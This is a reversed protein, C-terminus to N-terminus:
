TNFIWNKFSARASLKSVKFLVSLVTSNVDQHWCRQSFSPTSFHNNKLAAELHIYSAFLIQLSAPFASQLRMQNFLESCAIIHRQHFLMYNLPLWLKLRGNWTRTESQFVLLFMFWSMAFCHFRKLDILPLGSLVCQPQSSFPLTSTDSTEPSFWHILIIM